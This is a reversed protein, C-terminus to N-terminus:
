QTVEKLEQHQPATVAKKNAEIQQAIKLAREHPKLMSFSASFKTIDEANVGKTALISHMSVDKLWLSQEANSLLNALRGNSDGYGTVSVNGAKLSLDNLYVGHPVLEPLVSFLNTVRNRETQIETIVALRKNLEARQKDLKPLLALRQELKQIEQSIIANRQQQIQQQQELYSGATFVSGLSLLVSGLLIAYFRQQHQKRKQERWPLLNLKQIM